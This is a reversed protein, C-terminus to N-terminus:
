YVLVRMLFAAFLYNTVGDSFIMRVYSFKIRVGAIFGFNYLIYCHIEFDHADM